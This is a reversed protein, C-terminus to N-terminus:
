SILRSAIIMLLFDLNIKCFNLVTNTKAAAGYGVIKYNLDKYDKIAKNLKSNFKSAFKSFKKFNINNLFKKENQLLNIKRKKVINKKSKIKLYSLLSGGHIKVVEADHMFLNTRRLLSDLSKISFFSHHEHYITDFEFNKFMYYQSTQIAAIGDDKLCEGISDLFEKPSSVHALVNQAIIVDFKKILKKQYKKIGIILM